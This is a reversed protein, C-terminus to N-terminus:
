DTECNTELAHPHTQTSTRKKRLYDAFYIDIAGIDVGEESLVLDRRSFLLGVLPLRNHKVAYGIAM